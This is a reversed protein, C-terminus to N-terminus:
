FETLSIGTRKFKKWIQKRKRIHRFFVPSIKEQPMLKDRSKQGSRKQRGACVDSFRIMSMKLIQM